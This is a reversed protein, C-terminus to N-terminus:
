PTPEARSQAAVIEIFRDLMSNVQAGAALTLYHGSGIVSGVLVDPRLERLRALDFPAQAQIQLLPYRGTSLPASLDETFIARMLPAALHAPAAQFGTAVKAQLEPPDFPSFLRGMFERLAHVRGEGELLPVFTELRMTRMPEPFPIGGDLMAVGAVLDPRAAALRLGIGAGLVSHGCVVVRDLGAATTVALADAVFDAFAFGSTPVDSEGHGRLDLAVVRHRPALHEIQPGFLSRDGFAGHVLLVAPSGIGLDDYAIRVGDITVTKM